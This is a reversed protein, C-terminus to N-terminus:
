APKRIPSRQGYSDVLRLWKDIEIAHNNANPAPSEAPILPTPVTEAVWRLKNRPHAAKTSSKPRKPM